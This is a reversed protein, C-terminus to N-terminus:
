EPKPNAIKIQNRLQIYKNWKSNDGLEKEVLAEKLLDDIKAYEAKRNKQWAISEKEVRMRDLEIQLNILVDSDENILEKLFKKFDKVRHGLNFLGQAYESKDFQSHLEDRRQKLLEQIYVQFELQIQEETPQIITDNEDLQTPIRSIIKDKVEDLKISEIETKRM